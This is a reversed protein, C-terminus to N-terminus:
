IVHKWLKGNLLSWIHSKGRLNYKNMIDKYTCGQRWMSRINRVDNETLKASPNGSGRNQISKSIGVKKKHEDSCKKGLNAKRMREGVVKREELSFDNNCNTDEAMCYGNKCADYEIIYKAELERLCTDDDICELIDFIFNDIGHKDFARQLKISHHKNNLLMNKHERIRRHPNKSSGIYMKNNEVNIICYISHKLKSYNCKYEKMPIRYGKDNIKITIM